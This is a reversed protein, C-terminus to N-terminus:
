EEKKREQSSFYLEQFSDLNDKTLHVNSMALEIFHKHFDDITKKMKQYSEARAEDQTLLGKKEIHELTKGQPILEFRLTKSLQFKNTFVSLNNKM